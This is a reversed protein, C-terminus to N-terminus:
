RKGLFIRRASPIISMALVVPSTSVAMKYNTEAKKFWLNTLLGNKLLSGMNTVKVILRPNAKYEKTLINTLNFFKTNILEECNSELCLRVMWLFLKSFM